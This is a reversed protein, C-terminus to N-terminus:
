LNKLSAKLTKREIFIAAMDIERINNQIIEGVEKLVFSGFLHDNTDNVSKFHDMDLMVCAVRVSSRKARRIEFDIREYM